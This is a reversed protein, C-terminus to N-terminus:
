LAQQLARLARGLCPVLLLRLRLLTERELGCSTENGAPPSKGSIARGIAFSGM